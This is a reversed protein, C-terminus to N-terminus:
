SAPPPSSAERKSLDQNNFWERSLDSLTGDARLRKIVDNLVKVLDREGKKVAFSLPQWFLPPGSLELPKGSDIAQRLTPGAALLAEIRGSELDGFADADSAYTVISALAHDRLWYFSASQVAAGVMRGNLQGADTIPRGGKLVALQGPMYYYPVTFALQRRLDATPSLSGICVDFAGSRLGGPMADWSPSMFKVQLGLARGVKRAVDVDFGVLENRENVWSAPEYDDATAVVLVGRNAIAEARGTPARGLIKAFRDQASSPSSGDACGCLLVGVLALLLLSAVPAAIPARRRCRTTM